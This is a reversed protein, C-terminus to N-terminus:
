PEPFRFKFSLQFPTKLEQLQKNVSSFAPFIFKPFLFLFHVPFDQCHFFHQIKGCLFSAQFLFSLKGSFLKLFKKRFKLFCRLLRFFIFICILSTLFQSKQDPFFLFLQLFVLLQLLQLFFSYLNFPLQFVTLYLLFLDDPLFFLLVVVPIFLLLVGRALGFVGGMLADLHRLVPVNAYQVLAVAVAIIMAFFFSVLTLPITMTLGATLIRPLAEALVSVTRNSFFAEFM